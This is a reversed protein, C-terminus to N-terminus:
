PVTIIQRLCFQKWSSVKFWFYSLAGLGYKLLCIGICWPTPWWPIIIVTKYPIIVRACWKCVCVFRNLCLIYVTWLESERKREAVWFCSGAWFSDNNLACVFIESRNVLIRVYLYILHYALSWRSELWKCSKFDLKGYLKKGKM